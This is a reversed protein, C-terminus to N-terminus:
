CNDDGKEDTDGSGDTDGGAEGPIRNTEDLWAGLDIMKCRESCFPRWRQESSWEVAKGCNPCPVIRKAEQMKKQNERHQLM